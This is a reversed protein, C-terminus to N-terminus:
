SRYPNFRVGGPLGHNREVLEAEGFGLESGRPMRARILNELVSRVGGTGGDCEMWLEFVADRKRQASTDGALIREFAGVLARQAHMGEAARAKDALQRRLEETQDLFWRKEASYPDGGALADTLDFTGSVPVSNAQINGSDNFHVEGSPTIRARFVRNQFTYSGDAGLALHPPERKALYAQSRASQHLSDNLARQAAAGRQQSTDDECSDAGGSAKPNCTRGHDQPQSPVVLTHAAASPSLSWGPSPSPSTPTPASPLTVPSESDPTAAAVPGPEPAAVVPESPRSASERKRVLRPEPARKVEPEPEAVKPPAVEPEPPTPQAPSDVTFEVVSDAPAPRAAREPASLLWAVHILVSAAISFGLLRRDLRMRGM